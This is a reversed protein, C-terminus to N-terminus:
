DICGGTCVGDICTKCAHQCSLTTTVLLEAEPFSVDAEAFIEEIEGVKLSGSPQIAPDEPDDISDLISSVDGLCNLLDDVKANAIALKGRMDYVQLALVTARNSWWAIDCLHQQELRRINESHDPSVPLESISSTM